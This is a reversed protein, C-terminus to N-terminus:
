LSPIPVDIRRKDQQRSCAGSSRHQDLYREQIIGHCHMCLVSRASVRRADSDSSVIEQSITTPLPDEPNIPRSPLNNLAAFLSNVSNPPSGACDM